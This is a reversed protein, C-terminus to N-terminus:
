YYIKEYGIIVFRKTERLYLKANRLHLGSIIAYKFRYRKMNDERRGPYAAPTPM